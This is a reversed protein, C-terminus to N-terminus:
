QAKLFLRIPTVHGRASFVRLTRYSAETFLMVRSKRFCNDLIGAEAGGKHERICLIYSGDITVLQRQNIASAVEEDSLYERTIRPGSGTPTMGRFYGKRVLATAEEPTLFFTSLQFVLFRTWLDIFDSQELDNMRNLLNRRAMASFAAYGDPEFTAYFTGVGRRSVESASFSAKAKYLDAWSNGAALYKMIVSQVSSCNGLMLDQVVDQVVSEVYRAQNKSNVKVIAASAGRSSGWKMEASPQITIMLPDFIPRPASPVIQEQAIIIRTNTLASPHDIRASLWDAIDQESLGDFAGMSLGSLSVGRYDFGSSVRVSQLNRVASSAIAAGAEGSLTAVNGAHISVFYRM